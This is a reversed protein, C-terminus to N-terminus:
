AARRVDEGPYVPVARPWTVEALSRVVRIGGLGEAHYDWSRPIKRGRVEQMLKSPETLTSYADLFGMQKIRKLDETM